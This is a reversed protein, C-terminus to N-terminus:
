FYSCCIFGTANSDLLDFCGMTPQQVKGLLVVEWEWSIEGVELVKAALFGVFTNWLANRVSGRVSHDSEALFMIKFAYIGLQHSMGRGYEEFPGASTCFNFVVTLIPCGTGPATPTGWM